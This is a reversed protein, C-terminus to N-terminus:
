FLLLRAYFATDNQMAVTRLPLLSAEREQPPTAELSALAGPIGLYPMACPLVAGMTKAAQYASRFFRGLAAGRLGEAGAVFCGAASVGPLARLVSRLAPLSSVAFGAATIGDPVLLLGVSTPRADPRPLADLARLQGESGAVIRCRGVAARLDAASSSLYIREPPMGGREATPLAAPDTLYVAEDSWAAAHAPLQPLLAGYRDQLVGM